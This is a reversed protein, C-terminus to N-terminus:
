TEKQSKEQCKKGFRDYVGILILCLCFGDDFPFGGDELNSLIQLMIGSLNLDVLFNPYFERLWSHGNTKHKKYHYCIPSFTKKKRVKTAYSARSYDGCHVIQHMDHNVLGFRGGIARIGNPYGNTASEGFSGAM